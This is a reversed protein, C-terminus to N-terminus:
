ALIIHCIVSWIVLVGSRKDHQGFPRHNIVVPDDLLDAGSTHSLDVQSLICLEFSSHRKLEHWSM